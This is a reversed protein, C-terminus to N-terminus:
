PCSGVASEGPPLERKLAEMFESFYDEYRSKFHADLVGFGMSEEIRVNILCGSNHKEYRIALLKPFTAPKVFWGGLLRTVLQSGQKGAIEGDRSEVISVKRPINSQGTPRIGSASEGSM